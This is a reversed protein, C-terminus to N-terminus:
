RLKFVETSSLNHAVSSCKFSNRDLEKGNAFINAYSIILKPPNKIGNYVVDYYQSGADNPIGEKDIKSIANILHEKTINKPISM